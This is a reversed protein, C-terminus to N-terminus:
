KVTMGTMLINFLEESRTELEKYKNQLFFPMELGKTVMIIVESAMKYDIPKFVNNEVGEKLIGSLLVAEYRYFENKVDEVFDLQDLINSKLTEHYNVANSLLRMRTVLYNKLKNIPDEKGESIRSLEVKLVNLEKGVVEKFLDEKSVFYYYVSGKAKHASSAIEGITTRKYGYKGFIKSAVELINKRTEDVGM